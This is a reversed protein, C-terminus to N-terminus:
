LLLVRAFSRIGCFFRCVFKTVGNRLRTAAEVNGLHVAGERERERERKLLAELHVDPM